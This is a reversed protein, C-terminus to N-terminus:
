KRAKDKGQPQEKKQAAHKEEALVLKEAMLWHREEQGPPRGESEWISHAIQSIRAHREASSRPAKM